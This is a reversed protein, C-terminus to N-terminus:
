GASAHDAGCASSASPRPGARTALARRSACGVRCNTSEPSRSAPTLRLSPRCTTARSLARLSVSPTGIALYPDDDVRTEAYVWPVMAIVVAFGSVIAAIRWGRGGALAEGVMTILLLGSALLVLWAAEERTAGRLFRGGASRLDGTGAPRLGLEERVFAVNARADAHRPRLRQAAEYWGLAEGGRGDRWTANGLDYCVRARDEDGLSDLLVEELREIAEKHDGARYAEVGRDFLDQQAGLAPTFAALLLLVLRGM